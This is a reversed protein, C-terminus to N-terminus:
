SGYVTIFFVDGSTCGSIGITGPSATGTSNANAYVHPIATGTSLSSYGVSFGVVNSIGAQINGEAADATVQIIVTSYNGFVTKTRSVTFAM